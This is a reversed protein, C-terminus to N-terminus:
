AFSLDLLAPGEHDKEDGEIRFEVGPTSFLSTNVLTDTFAIYECVYDGPPLERSVDLSFEATVEPEGGLEIERRVGAVLRKGKNRFKIEARAVGNDDSATFRLRITDGAEFTPVHEVKAEAM